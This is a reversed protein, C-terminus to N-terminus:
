TCRARRSALGISVLFMAALTVGGTGPEPVSADASSDFLSFAQSGRAGTVPSWPGAAGANSFLAGSSLNSNAWVFNSPGSDSVSFFYNTGPQATFGAFNM